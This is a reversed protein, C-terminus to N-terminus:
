RDMKKVQVRKAEQAQKNKAKVFPNLDIHNVSHKRSSTKRAYARKDRRAEGIVRRNM